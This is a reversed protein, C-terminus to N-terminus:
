SSRRARRRSAASRTSSASSPRRTWRAPRNTSSSSAPTATGPAPSASASGSAAPSRIAARTAALSSPTGGGPCPPSPRTPARTSPPPTCSNRRTRPTRAASPSTSAPRSLGATSTRPSSRSGTSSTAATSSPPTSGTGSSAAPTRARVARVAAEGPDVQRQRQQRGARRDPRRPHHREGRRPRARHGHGPLHLLRERLPGRRVRAPLPRGTDPILRRDAEQCLRELDAVFLSEEYLYNLQVVLRRWTPPGPGSPSSRRVPSRWTWPGRGCCCGSCATRGARRSARDLRLRDARYPRGALRAPDTGARRDRGHDPLAAAPVPRHQPGAGRGRGARRDAATRVAPGCPRTPGLHPLLRVAAPRDDARELRQAADDAALLPLLAPHLVTLVGAAAALAIGATMVVSTCFQIMRRASEAGYQASDLLKHFEEDEVAALNSGPWGSWTSRPRWGSCRPSWGGPAPPRRPGYCRASSRPSRWWSWRPYPTTCGTPPTRRRRPPPGAGPQGGRARGGAGDRRGTRRDGGPAPRAPRGPPGAPRHRAILRPMRAVMTRLGLELFSGHHQNWGMDYRLPGGFLLRESESVGEDAGTEGAAEGEDTREPKASRKAKETREDRTTM